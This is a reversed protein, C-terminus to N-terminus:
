VHVFRANLSGKKIPCEGYKVEILSKQENLMEELDPLDEDEDQVYLSQWNFGGMDELIICRIEERIHKAFDYYGIRMEGVKGKVKVYIEDPNVRTFCVVQDNHLVPKIETSPVFLETLVLDDFTPEISKPTKLIYREFPYYENIVNIFEKDAM